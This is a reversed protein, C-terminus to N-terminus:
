ISRNNPHLYNLDPRDREQIYDGGHEAVYREIWDDWDPEVVIYSCRCRPHMPPFNIGPNRNEFSVPEERQFDAIARCVPCVKPDAKETAGETVYSMRYYGFQQEHVRAQAENFVFTGETYILRMADRREVGFRDKIIKALREYTEGRAFGQAIETNMTEALKEVNGWLTQSYNKGQAWREGIVARIIADNIRYFKKGFGLQEAALNAALAAYKALHAEFTAQEIAGIELQQVWVSYQLGELRDLKYISERIPLLEAYEPYKLAFENMKQMLLEREADSLSALLKRYEIVGDTGYEQYYAKIDRQLEALMREYVKALKENLIAEDAEMQEILQLVRQEWYKHERRVEDRQAKTLGPSPM